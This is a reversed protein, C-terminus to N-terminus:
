KSPSTLDIKIDKEIEKLKVDSTKGNKEYTREYATLILYKASKSISKGSIGAELQGVDNGEYYIDFEVEKGLDDRGKLIFEVKEDFAKKNKTYYIKQSLPTYVYKDITIESGGGFNLVKNINVSKIDKNIKSTDFDFEFIFPGKIAKEKILKENKEKYISIDGIEIKVDIIGIYKNTDLKFFLVEDISKDTVNSGSGSETLELLEGNIYIKAGTDRWIKIDKTIRDESITTLSVILEDNNLVAENLRVTINDKTVSKDILKIYNKENSKLRIASRIDFVLDSIINSAYTGVPTFSIIVLSVIAISLVSIYKKYNSSLNKKDISKRFKKKIKMKEIDNFGERDFESLDVEINNLMDYINKDNNNRM